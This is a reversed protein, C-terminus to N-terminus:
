PLPSNRSHTLVSIGPTIHSTSRNNIFRPIFFTMFSSILNVLSSSCSALAHAWSSDHTFLFFYSFSGSYRTDLINQVIRHKLGHILKNLMSLSGTLSVTDLYRIHTVPDASASVPIIHSHCPCTKEMVQKQIVPVGVCLLCSFMEMAKGMWPYGHLIRDTIKLNRLLFLIHDQPMHPRQCWDRWFGHLSKNQQICILETSRCLHCAPDLM